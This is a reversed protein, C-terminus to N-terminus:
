ERSLISLPLAVFAMKPGLKFYLKKFNLYTEILIIIIENTQQYFTSEFFTNTTMTVRSLLDTFRKSIAVLILIEANQDNEKCKFIYSIYLVVRLLRSKKKYYTYHYQVELFTLPTHEINLILIQTKDFHQFFSLFTFIRVKAGNRHM